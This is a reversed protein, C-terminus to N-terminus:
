CGLLSVEKAATARKAPPSFSVNTVKARWRAAPSASVVLRRVFHGRETDINKSGDVCVCANFLKLKLITKDPDSRSLHLVCKVLFM